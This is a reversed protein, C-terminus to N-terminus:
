RPPRPQSVHLDNNIGRVDDDLVELGVVKVDNNVGSIFVSLNSDTYVTKDQNTGIMSVKEVYAGEKYVITLDNNTGQVSIVTLRKKAWNPAQPPGVMMEKGALDPHPRGCYPCKEGQYSVGCGLCEEIHRLRKPGNVEPYLTPVDGSTRKMSM